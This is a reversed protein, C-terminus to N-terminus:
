REPASSMSSGNKRRHFNGEQGGQCWVRSVEKRSRLWKKRLRKKGEQGWDPRQMWSPEWAKGPGIWEEPLEWGSKQNRTAMVYQHHGSEHRWVPDQTHLGSRYFCRLYFTMEDVEKVWMKLTAIQKFSPHVWSPQCKSIVIQRLCLSLQQEQALEFRTANGKSWAM